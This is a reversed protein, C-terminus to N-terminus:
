QTKEKIVIYRASITVPINQRENLSGQITVNQLYPLEKIKSEFLPIDNRQKAIASIAIDNTKVSFGLSSITVGSPTHDAIDILLADFPVYQVLPSLTDLQINLKKTLEDIPLTKGSSTVLQTTRLNDSVEKIRIDLYAGSVIISAVTILCVTIIRSLSVIITRAVMLDNLNKKKEIDLLNLDYM